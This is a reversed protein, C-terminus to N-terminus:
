APDSPPEAAPDLVEPLGEVLPDPPPDTTPETTTPDTTTTTPETTTPETTTTTTTPPPAPQTTRPPAPRARTPEVPAPAPAPEATTPALTTTTPDSTITGTVAAPTNASAGPGNRSAFALAGGIGALALVSAVAAAIVARGHRTAPSPAVFRRPARPPREAGLATTVPEDGGFGAAASAVTGRAASGGPIPRGTGAGSWAPGGPGTVPDASPVRRVADPRVPDGAGGSTAARAAAAGGVAAGGVAAGGGAAGGVAAGGVAAAGGALPGAGLPAGAGSGAASRPGRGPGAADPADGARGAGANSGGTNSGGAASGGTNSGGAASGGAASGGAATGARRPLPGGAAARALLAAGVVAASGPDSVPTTALGLGASALEVVLPTRSAGGVLLLTDPEAGSAAVTRRLADVAEVLVPRIMDEFEARGLRVTTHVGPLMVPVQAVTDDSLVERATTADRRLRTVAALVAPDTADLADWQAGLVARVHAFVAEDLDAGGVPTVDGAALLQEGRVVATDCTSGGLDLVAVVADLPLGAATVAAVPGPVLTLPGVGHGALAARLAGVRHAGWGAPHTLGVRDPPGNERRAVQRVVAAVFRAALVDGPVPERGLLVPTPDGVRAPVGRVARHPDTAARREAADGVLFTGDPGAYVVTPVARAHEGLSFPATNGARCVAAGTWTGGMDIGVQYSM